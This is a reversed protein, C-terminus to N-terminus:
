EYGYREPPKRPRTSKRIIPSPPREEPQEPESSAPKPEAVDQPLGPQPSSGAPSSILDKSCSSTELREDCNENETSSPLEHPSKRPCPALDQVSVTSERGDRYKVHAFTLNCDILDVEDVLPETKNKRVYRRLM